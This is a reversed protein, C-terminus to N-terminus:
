AKSPEFRLGAFQHLIAILAATDCQGYGATEGAIMVERHHNSLFLPVGAAHGVDLMLEVDKRHQSLTSEPDFRGEVMRKGTMDMARSYSPCDRLVDLLRIGDIGQRLGFMLTEALVLRNLGLAMNVVLKTRAGAGNAGMYYANRSLAQFIPRCREFISVDGGVLLVIDKSIAQASSGSVAADLMWVGQPRLEQALSISSLPHVTSMDMLVTDPQMSSLAGNQGVVVQRVIDSSMLSTIVVAAGNAADAPSTAATGGASVFDAVRDPKIDYGRMPFGASLLNKTLVSGMLGLGIFGIPTRVSTRDAAVGGRVKIAPTEIETM